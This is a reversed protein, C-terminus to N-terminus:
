NETFGGDSKDDDRGGPSEVAEGRAIPLVM